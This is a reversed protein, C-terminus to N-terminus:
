FNFQLFHKKLFRFKHFNIIILNRTETISQFYSLVIGNWVCEWKVGITAEPLAYEM